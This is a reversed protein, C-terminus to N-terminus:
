LFRDLEERNTLIPWKVIKNRHNISPRIGNPGGEFGVAMLISEFIRLKKESLYVPRFVIRPFYQTYLFEFLYNFDTALGLYDDVFPYFALAGYDGIM